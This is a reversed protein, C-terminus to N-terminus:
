CWCVNENDECELMQNSWVNGAKACVHQSLVQKIDEGGYWWISLNSTVESMSVSLYHTRQHTGAASDMDSM